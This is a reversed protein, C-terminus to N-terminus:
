ETVEQRHAIFVVTKDPMVLLNQLVWKETLLDLNSTSEDLILVQASNAAARVIAM